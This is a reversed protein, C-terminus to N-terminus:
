CSRLIRASGAVLYEWRSEPCQVRSWYNRAADQADAFAHVAPVNPEQYANLYLRNIWGVDVAVPDVDVEVEYVLRRHEDLWSRATVEDLSLMLSAMRSPISGFEARRVQEIFLEYGYWLHRGGAGQVARGWSGPQVLEGPEYWVGAAYFLKV